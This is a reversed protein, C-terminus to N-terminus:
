VTRAYGEIVNVGFFEVTSTYETASTACAAPTGTALTSARISAPFNRGTALEDAKKKV